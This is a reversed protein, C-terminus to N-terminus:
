DGSVIGMNENKSQELGEIVAAVSLNMILMSVIITFSIFYPFSLFSGCGKYLGGNEVVVEFPQVSLCEEYRWTSTTQNFVKLKDGNALEYMFGNWDEGTAFKMLMIMSNAFSQFNNKDDLKDVFAVGSFLNIGLAAYIFFLLFILSMVNSIQPLINIITDLILRLHVSSRILKFMRMIRLARFVTAFSSFGAELAFIKLIISLDTTFVIVMDFLNWTYYFYIKRLGILKLIMEANFVFAFLYNANESIDELTENMEYSKMAMFLTNLCIFSTITYEFYAHNVIEHFVGQCGTPTPLKIKLRKGQGVKQVEIWKRQDETVFLGGLEEREKITNFNDIVVGVFLNIIFQSGVIMFACFFLM